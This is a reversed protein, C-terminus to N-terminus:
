QAPADDPRTRALAATSGRRACSPATPCITAIREEGALKSLGYAGAPGTPDNERYPRHLWGDFVYDTSLHPLPAGMKVRSGGLVAGEGSVRTALDEESEARDVTYAAANIGVDPKAARVGALVSDRAELSFSPRSLTLIEFEPGAREGLATAVQGKAGDSRRVDNSFTRRTACGLGAAIRTPCFRAPPRCPGPSGLIWTTGRSGADNAPSFVATTKYLVVTDPELTVFGHAFGTPVLM